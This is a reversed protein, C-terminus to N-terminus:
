EKLLQRYLEMTQRVSVNIHMDKRIFSRAERAKTERYGRDKLYRTVAQVFGAMDGPAVIEGKDADPVLERNGPIDSVVPALGLSMGEILTKNLGEGGTSTNIIVQCARMLPLPNPQFGALVIRDRAPSGSLIQLNAKSDMGNGVLLWYVERKESVERAARLLTSIDKFPRNNAVSIVTFAGKPIGFPELRAPQIPDYWNPDHGKTIWVTPDKRFWFQRQLSQRIERTICIIADVRPHLYKFYATPDYWHVHGAYGRYLIVKVPLGRAARLGHIIARSNYLHLIHYGEKELLARLSQSEKRDFKTRPHTTMVRMGAKQFIGEYETEPYTLIDVQVGAKALGIFMEAEPRVSVTGRYDSVVLVKMKEKRIQECAVDRRGTYLM